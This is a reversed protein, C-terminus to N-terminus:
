YNLVPLVRPTDLPPSMSIVRLAGPAVSFEAPTQCIPEGDAYVDFPFETEIGVAQTQSYEIEKFGLHRGFYVTPFLCFLKFVDMSGVVCLDLKGDNLKAQPAIKMGGGYTPANAVAALLTPRFAAQTGNPLVKMPFPAFRVFERSACLAYGGNARLWRPLANASRNIASDLGIGAVCCFYTPPATAGGPLVPRVVGLDISRSKRNAEFERMALIADRVTRIGLARAFDNGSGCPVVLLPIEIEVLSALHRHVTGDGGFILAVDAQEILSTWQVKTASQFAIM